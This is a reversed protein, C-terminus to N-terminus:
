AVSQQDVVASGIFLFFSSFSFCCFIFYIYLFIFYFNLVLHLRERTLVIEILPCLCGHGWIRM